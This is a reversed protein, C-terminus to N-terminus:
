NNATANAMVRQIRLALEDMKVPKIIFDDAGMGIATQVVEVDDLASILIVPIKKNEAKIIELLELGSMFPMMIDSIVLDPQENKIIDVAERGDTSTLIQHNDKLLQMEILKISMEEDDVVLIKM